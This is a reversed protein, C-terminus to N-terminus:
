RLTRPYFKKKNDRSKADCHSLRLVFPRGKMVSWHLAHVSDHLLFEVVIASDDQRSSSISSACYTACKIGVTEAPCDRLTAVDYSFRRNCEIVLLKISIVVPQKLIPRVQKSLVPYVINGAGHLRDSGTTNNTNRRDDVNHVFIVNQTNASLVILIKQRVKAEHSGTFETRRLLWDM